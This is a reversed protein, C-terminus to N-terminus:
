PRWHAPPRPSSCTDKGSKGPLRKVYVLEPDGRDLNFLTGSRVYGLRRLLRQMTVNSRNTSTFLDRSRCRREAAHILRTAVGRRRHAAAVCVLALFGREYFSYNLVAYAVLRGEDDCVLGHGAAFANRVFARRAARRRAIPDIRTIAKADAGTARRIRM